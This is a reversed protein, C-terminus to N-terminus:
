ARTLTDVYKLLTPMRYPGDMSSVWEAAQDVEVGIATIYLPKQSNGRILARKATTIRVFNTKAIGIVPIRGGLAQYLRGGLGFSGADDLYVYGDVLIADIDEQPIKELLSLLCPLERRYFEGSVYDEIGDRDETYVHAPENDQWGKFAICVTKATHGTYYTDFALLM